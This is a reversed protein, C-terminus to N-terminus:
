DSYKLLFDEIFLEEENTLMTQPSKKLKETLKQIKKPNKLHKQLFLLGEIIDSVTSDEYLNYHTKNSFVRLIYKYVLDVHTGDDYKILAIICVCRCDFNRYALGEVYMPIYKEKGLVSLAYYLSTQTDKIDLALKDIILPISTENGIKALAYSICYIEADNKTAQFITHLREVVERSPCRGLLIICSARVWIREDDLLHIIDKYDPSYENQNIIANLLFERNHQNKEYKLANLLIAPVQLNGTHEGINQLVFYLYHKKNNDLRSRKKYLPELLQVFHPILSEDKLERAESIAEHAIRYSRGIIYSDDVMRELLDKCYEFGTM